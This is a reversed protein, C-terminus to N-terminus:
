PEVTGLTYLSHGAIVLTKGSLMHFRAIIPQLGGLQETGAVRRADIAEGGV